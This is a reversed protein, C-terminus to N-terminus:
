SVLVFVLAKDFICFASCKTDASFGQFNGSQAARVDAWVTVKVENRKDGVGLQGERFAFACM